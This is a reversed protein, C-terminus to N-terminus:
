YLNTPLKTSWITLLPFLNDINVIFTTVMGNVNYFDSDPYNTKIPKQYRIYGVEELEVNDTDISGTSLEIKNKDFATVWLRANTIIMPIYWVESIREIKIRKVEPVALAEISEVLISIDAELLRREKNAFVCNESRISEPEIIFKQWEAYYNGAASVRLIYATEIKKKQETNIFIWNPNNSVKKCEIVIRPVARKIVLDIYGKTNTESNLWPIEHNLIIWDHKEEESKRQILNQVAIQFPFGSQNLTKIIEDKM